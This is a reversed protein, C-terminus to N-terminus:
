PTIREEKRDPTVFIRRPSNDEATPDALTAALWCIFLTAFGVGISLVKVSFGTAQAIRAGYETWAAAAVVNALGLPILLKWGLAMLQDFRFRPWSWRVLMFFLILAIAKAQLVIIRLAAVTWTVSESAPGGAGDTLGWLHWGGFFLIVILFSATFMHIFEAVLYMMLKIGAYETHYGGVLEQECEPLDFPLRGAEACAAVAFVILGLPQSFCNWVGSAAQAAIISDLRLSGSFMIVGLIGLGLPIEYALLQASSRLGGLLSYKNDSAWGGLVVGYVAIGGLAFIYIIGVDLNPAANLRIPEVVGWSAPFLNGPLVSGFPIVAFVLIASVFIVIPALTFLVRDVHGPNFEAKTLFKVGDAIPQGLGFIRIKTLPIGVRNPGLRDQVWAAIWREVLVFYAAGTMLGGILLGVKILTEIIVPLLEYLM